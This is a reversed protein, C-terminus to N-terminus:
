YSTAERSSELEKTEQISTKVTKLSDILISVDESSTKGGNINNINNIMTKYFRDLLTIITHSETDLGSRLILFVDVIKNLTKYKLEYDEAEVAKRAQHLLKIIEDFIFLVQGTNDSTKVAASKYKDLVNNTKFNNQYM